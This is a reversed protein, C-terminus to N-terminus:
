PSSGNPPKYEWKGPVVHGLKGSPLQPRYQIEVKKCIFSCSEKVEGDEDSWEVSTVLVDTFDIRLYVDGTTAQGTDGRANSSKRKILTASQYGQGKVVNGGFEKSTLDFERTFNIQKVPSASKQKEVRAKIDREVEFDKKEQPRKEGPTLKGERSRKEYDAIARHSEKMIERRMEAPTADDVQASMSFSDIEIFHNERFGDLLKRTVEDRSTLKARSEGLIPHGHPNVFKMYLDSHDGKAM